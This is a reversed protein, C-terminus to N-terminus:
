IEWNSSKSLRPEIFVENISSVSSSISWYENVCKLQRRTWKKYLVQYYLTINNRQHNKDFNKLFKYFLLFNILYIRQRFITYYIIVVLERKIFVIDSRIFKRGMTTPIARTARESPPRTGRIVPITSITRPSIKFSM